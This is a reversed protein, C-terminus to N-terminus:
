HGRKKCEEDPDRGSFTPGQEFRSGDTCIIGTINGKENRIFRANQGIFFRFRTFQGLVAIIAFAVAFLIIGIFANIIRKQAAALKEKDGGSTLWEFAGWIIMFILVIAAISFILVVLRSLFDSIAGAGTPDTKLFDKLVPPPSITGFKCEISDKNKGTPSCDLAASASGTFILFAFLILILSLIKMHKKIQVM